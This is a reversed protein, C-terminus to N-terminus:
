YKSYANNRAKQLKYANNDRDFISNRNIGLFSDDQSGYFIWGFIHFTKSPYIPEYPMCIKLHHWPVGGYFAAYTDDAFFLLVLFIELLKDASAKM